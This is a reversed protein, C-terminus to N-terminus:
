LSVSISRMAKVVGKIQKRCDDLAHHTVPGLSSTKMGVISLLTRVCRVNFFRWPKEMGLRHYITSLIPEDFNAGNCWLFACNNDKWFTSFDKVADEIDVRDTDTELEFRSSAPQISWFEVTKPDRYLALRDCSEGKIRRYFSACEKGTDDFVVAGITMVCADMTTAYTELDLMLNM